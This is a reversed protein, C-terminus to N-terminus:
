TEGVGLLHRELVLTQTHEVSSGTYCLLRRLCSILLLSMSAGTYTSGIEESVEYSILRRSGFRRVKEDVDPDFRDAKSVICKIGAYRFLSFRKTGNGNEMDQSGQEVERVFDSGWFFVFYYLVGALLVSVVVATTVWGPLSGTSPTVAYSIIM